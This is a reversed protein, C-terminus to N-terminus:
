ALRRLVDVLEAVGLGEVRHGGPTVLTLVRAQHHKEDRVVVPVLLRSTGRRGPAPSPLSSRQWNHLVAVSVGVTAAIEHWPRGDRRAVVAYALIAARVDPPIRTTRGRTGLSRVAAVAAHKLNSGM